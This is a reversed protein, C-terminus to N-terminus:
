VSKKMTKTANITILYGLPVSLQMVTCFYLVKSALETPSDLM